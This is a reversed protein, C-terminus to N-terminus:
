GSRRFATALYVDWSPAWPAGTGAGALAAALTGMAIIPMVPVAIGAASLGALLAGLGGGVVTGAPREHAIAGGQATSHSRVTDDLSGGAIELPSVLLGVALSRGCCPRGRRQGRRSM